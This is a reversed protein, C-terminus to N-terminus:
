KWLLVLSFDLSNGVFAVNVTRMYYRLNAGIKFKKFSKLIGLGTWYGWQVNSFKMLKDYCVVKENGFLRNKFLNIGGNNVYSCLAGAQIYPSYERKLLIYKLSLPISYRIFDLKYGETEICQFYETDSADSYNFKSFILEAQFSLRDSFRPNHMDFLLGVSPYIANYNEVCNYVKRQFEDIIYWSIGMGATAGVNIKYWPLDKKYDVFNINNYTKNYRIVFNVLAEEGFCKNKLVKSSNSFKDSTLYCLIGIWRNSKREGLGTSTEIIEAKYELKHIKGGNKRVYYIDGYGYLDIVGKVLAEVFVGDIITSVYCKENFTGYEAIQDPLYKTVVGDKKFCCVSFNSKKSKYGIQGRITDNKLTVVYGDKFRDQASVSLVSAGWLLLTIIILKKM